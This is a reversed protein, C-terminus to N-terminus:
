SLCRSTQFWSPRNSLFIDDHCFSDQLSEIFFFSGTENLLFVTAVYKNVVGGDVYGSELAKILTVPHAKVCFL